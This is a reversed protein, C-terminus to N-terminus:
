AGESVPVPALEAAAEREQLATTWAADDLRLYPLQDRLANGADLMRQTDVLYRDLIRVSPGDSLQDTRDLYDQYRARLGPLMVDYVAALRRPTEEIEAIEALMALYMDPPDISHQLPMRLEHTRKGLSDAHEAADWLHEGFLLKVEMEPTTPVWSAMTEMLWVHVYRATAVFRGREKVTLM